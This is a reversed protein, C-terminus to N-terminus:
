DAWLESVHSITAGAPDASMAYLKQTHTLPLAVNAPWLFGTTGTGDVSLYFSKDTSILVVRKRKPTEPLINTWSGAPVVDTKMQARRAPLEHVQVPGLVDVPVASFPAPEEQLVESLGPSADTDAGIEM